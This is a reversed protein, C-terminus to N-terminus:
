ESAIADPMRRARLKGENPEGANPHIASDGSRNASDHRCTDSM